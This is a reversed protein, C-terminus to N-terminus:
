RSDRGQSDRGQKGKEEMRFVSKVVWVMGGVAGLAAGALTLWPLIGFQMDLWYGLGLPLLMMLTFQIGIGTYRAYAGIGGRQEARRLAEPSQGSQKSARLSEADRALREYEDPTPPQPKSQPRKSDGNEPM